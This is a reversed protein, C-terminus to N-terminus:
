EARHGRGWPSEHAAQVRVTGDLDDRRLPVAARADREREAGGHALHRVLEDVGRVRRGEGDIRGAPRPREIGVAVEEAERGLSAPDPERVEEVRPERHVQAEELRQRVLDLGDVALHQGALRQAEREHSSGPAPLVIM